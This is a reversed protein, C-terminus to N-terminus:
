EIVEDAAALVGSPITLGLSETTKLNIVLEFKSALVVPLDGAKEGKLIRGAYEGLVFYSYDTNSGYSVLGGAEAFERRSYIAPIALRAAAAVIRDVRDFFFPDTTVFLADPRTGALRDFAGDVEVDNSASLMTVAFGVAQAARRVDNPEESLAAPNYLVAVARAAPLLDHLLGLRKSGLEALVSIVGTVNGSPHNLSPVLREKVPDLGTAFIIPMSLSAAQVARAGPIGTGVSVVLAVKRRVLDAALASLDEYRGDAWRYEIAVNQGEVYGQAMLGRRFQRLLSAETQSSRSSLWGIVPLAAKEQARAVLPWAAAAGLEAIFTRRKLTM